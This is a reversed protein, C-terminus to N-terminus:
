FNTHINGGTQTSEYCAPVYEDVFSLVTGSEAAAKYFVDKCKAHSPLLNFDACTGSKDNGPKHCLSRSPGGNVQITSSIKLSCGTSGKLDNFKKIFSELKSTASPAFLCVNNNSGCGHTTTFNTVDSCSGTESCGGSQSRSSFTQKCSSNNGNSQGTNSSTNAPANIKLSELGKLEVLDPNIQRLIVYTLLLIALGAITTSIISKAQQVSQETGTIYLYGAVVLLLVSAAISITLIFSYGQKICGVIGGPQGPTCLYKAISSERGSSSGSTTNTNTSQSNTNNTNSSQALVLNEQLFITGLFLVLSTLVISLFLKKM